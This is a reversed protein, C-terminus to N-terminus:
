GRGYTLPLLKASKRSRRRRRWGWGGAAAAGGLLLLSSPEPVPSFSLVLNDMAFQRNDFNTLVGRLAVSDFPAGTFNVTGGPVSGGFNGANYLNVSQEVGLLYTRMELQSSGFPGNVAYNFSIQNVVASFDMHLRDVVISSLPDIMILFQGSMLPITPFTATNSIVYENTSSADSWFTTTFSVFTGSNPVRNAMPTADGLAFFPTEFTYSATQASAAGAAALLLAFSFWCRM